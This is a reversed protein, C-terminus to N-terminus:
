IEFIENDLNAGMNAQQVPNIKEISSTVSSFYDYDLEAVINLM